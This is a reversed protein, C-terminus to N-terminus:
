IIILLMNLKFLSLEFMCIIKPKYNIINYRLKKYNYVGQGGGSILANGLYM